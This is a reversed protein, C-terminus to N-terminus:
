TDYNRNASYLTNINYKEKLLNTQNQENLKYFFSCIFYILIIISIIISFLFVIFYKQKSKIEKYIFADTNYLYNSYNINENKTILIQNM